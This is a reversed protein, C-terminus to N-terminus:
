PESRRRTHNGCPLDFIHKREQQDCADTLANQLEVDPVYSDLSGTQYAFFDGNELFTYAKRLVADINTIYVIASRVYASKFSEDPLPLNGARGQVFTVKLLAIRAQELMADTLDLTTVSDSKSRVIRWTACSRM